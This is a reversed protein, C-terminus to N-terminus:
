IELISRYYDVFHYTKEQRKRRKKATKTNILRAEIKQISFDDAQIYYKIEKLPNSNSQAYLTDNKETQTIIYGTEISDQMIIKMTYDDNRQKISKRYWKNNLVAIDYYHVMDDNDFEFPNRLSDNNSLVIIREHPVLLTTFITPVIRWMSREYSLNVFQKNEKKYMYSDAQIAFDSRYFNKKVKKLALNLIGKPGLGSVNVTDLTTKIPTLKIEEKIDKVAVVKYLYAMHMIYLSDKNSKTKITFRGNDDSMVGKSSNAKLAIFAFEVPQKSDKDILTATIKNQALLNGICFFIFIISIIQKKM